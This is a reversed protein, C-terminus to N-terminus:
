EQKKEKFSIEEKNERSKKDGSQQPTIKEKSDSEELFINTLEETQSVKELKTIAKSELKESYIIISELAQMKMKFELLTNSEDEKTTMIIPNETKKKREFKSSNGQQDKVELDSITITEIIEM